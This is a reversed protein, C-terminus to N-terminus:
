RRVRVGGSERVRMSGCMQVEVIRFRCMGWVAVCKVSSCM